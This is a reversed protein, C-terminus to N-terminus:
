PRIFMACASYRILALGAPEVCTRPRDLLSGGGMSILALRATEGCVGQAVLCLVGEGGMSIFALRATENLNRPCGLLPSESVWALFREDLHKEVSTKLSRAALCGFLWFFLFGFLPLM